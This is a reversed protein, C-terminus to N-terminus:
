EPLVHQKDYLQNYTDLFKALSLAPAQRIAVQTGDGFTISIGKLDKCNKDKTSQKSRTAQIGGQGYFWTGEELKETIVELRLTAVSLGHRRMWQNASQVRIHNSRCFSSFSLSRDGNARLHQKYDEVLSPCRSGNISKFM